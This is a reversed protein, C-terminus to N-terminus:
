PTVVNMAGRNGRSVKTRTKAASASTPAILREIRKRNKQVRELNNIQKEVDAPKGLMMGAMGAARAAPHPIMTLAPALEKFKSLAPSVANSVARSVSQIWDGLFNRDVTVGVPLEYNLISLIELAKVDYAPSPRAINELLTDGGSPFLEFNLNLNVLITNKPDLGTLICFSQDFESWFHDFVGFPGASSADAAYGALLTDSPAVNYFLPQVPSHANAPIDVTHLAFNQYSGDKANWQQSDAFALAAAISAPPSPQLVASFVGTPGAAEVAVSYAGAYRNSNYPQRGVTLSGQQTLVASPNHVEFGGGTIRCIEGTYQPPAFLFQVTQTSSVVFDQMNFPTGTPVAVAVLGSWNAGGTGGQSLVNVPNSGSDLLRTWVAGKNTPPADWTPCNFIFLDWTGTTGSPAEITMSQKSKSPVSAATVADPWGVPPRRTDPFSDINNEVALKGAASVGVADMTRRLITEARVARSM